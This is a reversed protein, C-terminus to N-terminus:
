AEAATYILDERRHSTPTHKNQEYKLLERVRWTLIQAQLMIINRLIDVTCDTSELQLCLSDNWHRTVTWTSLM